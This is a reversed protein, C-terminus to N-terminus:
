QASEVLTKMELMAAMDDRQGRRDFATILNHILRLLWQAHTAPRLLADDRVVSGGAIQEIRDFAEDRSLTRGGAFADVLLLRNPPDNLGDRQTTVRRELVGALFHGPANIGLVRLGLSEVVTKYLLVLTLPQGRRTDLVRSLYSNDPHYYDRTNGRFRAEEFLVAHAHALKARPDTSRLRDKIQDALAAIQDQVADIKANPLEHMSVAVACRILGSPTDLEDLHTALANFAEPRCHLPTPEPANM